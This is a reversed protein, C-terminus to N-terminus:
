SSRASLCASLCVSLCAFRHTPLSRRWFNSSFLEVKKAIRVKKRESKKGSGGEGFRESDYYRSYSRTGPFLQRFSDTWSFARILRKLTPSAKSDQNRTADNKDTICNFDGSICGNPKANILLQPITEALYTERNNRMIRDNGSHLYLNCFTVNEIDFSIARGNTDLNVNEIILDNRVLSATGYRNIPSNNQIIQFNTALLHCSEFSSEDIEIEQCHLIDIKHLKIFDEIQKQKTIDLGSQGRINLTAVILSSIETSIITPNTVLSTSNTSSLLNSSRDHIFTSRHQPSVPVM